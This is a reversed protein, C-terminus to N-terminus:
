KILSHSCKGSTRYEEMNLLSTEVMDKLAGDTASGLHPTVLVKPYLAVMRRVLPDPIDGISSFAQNFIGKEVPLVDLGLGALRGQEVAEVAAENDLLEGRACNILIASKKMKGILERSVFGDNQKPVYNMHISLLDSQSFLTNLDVYEVVDKCKDNVFLDYAITKAGLGKFLKATTYGIRGCGLVGVTCERIEKSFDQDTVKFNMASTLSTAYSVNRLLSMGLTLALESIANPSYGPVFAAEIGIQKCAAVDVHNYGATRTLYYRLGKEYLRRLNAANVVCNGRVMVIAYGFADEVNDDNLFQPKLVLDYGYKKGMEEFTPKEYDRVGFCIIKKEM